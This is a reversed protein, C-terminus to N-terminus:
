RRHAARPPPALPPRLDGRAGGGREREFFRLPTTSLWPDRSDSIHRRRQAVAAPGGAGAGPRADRRAGGISDPRAEDRPARDGRDADRDNGDPREGRLWM